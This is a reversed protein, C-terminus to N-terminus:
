SLVLKGLCDLEAGATISKELCEGIIISVLCGSQPVERKWGDLPCEVHLYNSTVAHLVGVGQTRSKEVVAPLLKGKWQRVYSIKGEVAKQMLWSVREGKIREPVKESMCQAPTGPRPSFPFAHIWAFSSRECLQKTAEFEREGEGPFGAIIDCSIFPNDKIQRLREIAQDVHSLSHPRKMAKLITDSGSQISLHFFPQIRPHSLLGCLKKDISEPYFSSVRFRVHKTGKLLAQLLLEFGGGRGQSDNGRWQSM